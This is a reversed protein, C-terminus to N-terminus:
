KPLNLEDSRKNCGPVPVSYDGSVSDFVDYIDCPYPSVDDDADGCAFAVCVGRRVFPLAEYAAFDVM